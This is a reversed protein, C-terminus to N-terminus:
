TRMLLEAIKRLLVAAEVPKAPHDQFGADLGARKKTQEAEDLVRRVETVKQRDIDAAVRRIEDMIRKDEGDQVRRAIATVGSTRRRQILADLDRMKQEGLTRIEVGMAALERDSGLIAKMRVCGANLKARAAEYPELFKEDGTVIFGRQGTEADVYLRLLAELELREAQLDTIRRQDSQLRAFTVNSMVGDAVLLILLALFGVILPVKM